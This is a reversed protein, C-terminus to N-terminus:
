KPRIQYLIANWYSAYRGSTSRIEWCASCLPPPHPHRSRPPPAQDLPPVQDLPTTDWCASLCVGWQSCFEQCMSSFINGQELSRKRATFIATNWDILLLETTKFQKLLNFQRPQFQIFLSRTFNLQNIKHIDLLIELQSSIVEYECAVKNCAVKCDFAVKFNCFVKTM